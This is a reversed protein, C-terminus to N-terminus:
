YQVSEVEEYLEIRPHGVVGARGMADKLAPNDRFATATDVSSFGSVVTINNPDDVGRNVRHFVAGGSSPPFEDFVAKFRDYDEVGHNIALVYM